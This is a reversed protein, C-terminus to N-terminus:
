SDVVPLHQSVRNQNGILPHCHSIRPQCFQSHLLEFNTTINQEIQTKMRKKRLRCDQIVLKEKEKASEMPVYRPDKVLM